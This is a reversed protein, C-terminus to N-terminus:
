DGDGVDTGYSRSGSHLATNILVLGVLRLADARIHHLRQMYVLGFLEPNSGITAEVAPHLFFLLEPTPYAIACHGIVFYKVNDAGGIAGQPETGGAVPYKSKVRSIIAKLRVCLSFTEKRIIHQNTRSM